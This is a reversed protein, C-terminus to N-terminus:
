EVYGLEKLFGELKEAEKDRDKEIDRATVKYKDWFNEVISIIELLHNKMYRKLEEELTIYFRKLILEKSEEKSIKERAKQVLEDKKKEAAKIESKLEKLENELETHKELKKDIDSKKNEYQNIKNNIKEIENEIEEKNYGLEKVKTENLKNIKKLTDKLPKLKEKKLARIQGNIEKKNNKLEKVIEKPLVESEIDDNEEETDSEAESFMSELEQIRDQNDRQKQLVEPFQSSLIEEDPILAPSWGSAAISKLDVKQLHWFNVFAGEVEHLDLMEYQVFRDVFSNIFDKRVNFVDKTEPLTILRDKNENWWKELENLILKEKNNVEYDEEILTKLNEKEKVDQSFNYYNEDKDIFFKEIDLGHAEFIKRKSNVEKKSVGGLLHARVDHPEPEPTNDVYRRINLNFENEEIEQISVFRSYKDVEM